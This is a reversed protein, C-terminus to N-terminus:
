PRWIVIAIEGTRESFRGTQSSAQLLQRLDDEFAELRNGFLHPASGSLSFVASVVEDLSRNLVEGREVEIRKPGTFGARRM